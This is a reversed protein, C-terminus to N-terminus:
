YQLTWNILLSYFILQKLFLQIKFEQLLYSVHYLEKRIACAIKSNKAETLRPPSPQSNDCHADTKLYKRCDLFFWPEKAMKSQPEVTAKLVGMHGALLHPQSRAGPGVGLVGFCHFYSM